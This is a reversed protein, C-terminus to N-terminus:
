VLDNIEAYSLHVEQEIIPLMEHWMQMFATKRRELEEVSFEHLLMTQQLRAQFHAPLRPLQEVCYYRWKMDAVLQDNLAFLMDFFYNLGQAVMHHASTLNGRQMWLLTLRNIYWESLSLGSMLLWKKEEPQLPLKQALLQAVKGQPDYHIQGQSFTWRKPMDWPAARESEYDALHCHVEFGEVQLFQGPLTIGSAPEKFLAIDIDASADFYGRAIAGLFVIGVIGDRTYGAAFERALRTAKELLAPDSSPISFPISM